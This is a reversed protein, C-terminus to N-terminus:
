RKRQHWEPRLKAPLYGLLLGRVVQLNPSPIDDNLFRGNGGLPGVAVVRDTSGDQDEFVKAFISISGTPPHPTRPGFLAESDDRASQRRLPFTKEHDFRLFVTRICKDMRGGVDLLSRFDSFVGLNPMKRM